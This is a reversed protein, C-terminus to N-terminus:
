ASELGFLMFLQKRGEFTMQLARSGTIPRVLDEAILKNLLAAGLSGALHFRRETWDLCPKVLPRKQRSLQVMDIGLNSFFENGGGTVAFTGNLYEIYANKLLSDTIAVGINGALHDYCTRCYSIPDHGAKSIKGSPAPLLSGMAEIVYAIEMRSYSYYRHRGQSSVKLVGADLLKGLHMSTNPRSLDAFVALETATYAKGDLLAWLLKIRSPDGILSAVQELEKTEM